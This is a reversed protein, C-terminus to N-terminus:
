DGLFDNITKPPAPGSPTVSMPPSGDYVQREVPVGLFNRLNNEADLPNVETNPTDPDRYGSQRPGSLNDLVHGGVEHATSEIPGLSYSITEGTETNVAEVPPSSGGIQVSQYVTNGEGDVIPRVVSGVQTADFSFPVHVRQSEALADAAATEPSLLKTIELIVTAIPGTGCVGVRNGDADTSCKGSPDTANLPDNGVYAYLNFQDAYLVPDTQYFRGLAPDYYRARYNFIGWEAELRRGTYRYPNGSANFPEEVGYPTYVYQAAMAGSSNVMAIVNGQRDAHYAEYILSACVSGGYTASGNLTTCTTMNTTIMVVREDVSVGPVYRRIIRGANAGEDVIDAIVMDGAYAYRLNTRVSSTRVIQRGDPDYLFASSAAPGMAQRWGGDTGSGQSGAGAIATMRNMSDHFMARYPTNSLNGNGDYLFGGQGDHGAWGLVRDNIPEVTFNRSWASGGASWLWGNQNVGTATLRGAEDYDHAFTVTTATGGISMGHDLRVLDGDAEFAYDISSTGTGVGGFFDVRTRRGLTDYSYVALTLECTGNADADECVSTLRGAGDYAYRAVWGDPWIIATRNGASDYEYGVNLHQNFEPRSQTEQTLRGAFDYEYDTASETNTIGNGPDDNGEDWEARTRAGTDDYAFNMDGEPYVSRTNRNSADYEFNHMQGARTITFARNGAADYDWELPDGIWGGSGDPIPFDMRYPRRYEDTYMVTNPDLYNTRCNIDGIDDNPQAPDRIYNGGFWRYTEGLENRWTARPEREDATGYGAVTCFPQGNGYYTFVDRRATGNHTTGDYDSNLLGNAYYLFSRIDGDPDIIQDIRGSARYRVETTNWDSGSLNGASGTVTRAIDAYQLRSSADYRFRSVSATAADHDAGTLQTLRRDARYTGRARRSTPDTVTLLNGVNDWTFTTTLTQGSGYSVDQVMMYQPLGDGSHYTRTTQRNHSGDVRTVTTNVRGYSTYTIDTREGSPGLTLRPLGDHSASFGSCNGGQSTHYCTESMNGAGDYARTPLSNFVSHGGITASYGYEAVADIYGAGVLSYDVIHNGSSNTQTLQRSLVSNGYEDYFTRTYTYHIDPDYLDYSRGQMVPRGAADFETYNMVHAQDTTIFNRGDRNYFNFTEWSLPDRTLARAGAGIHYETTQSEGNTATLIRGDEDYDFSVFAASPAHPLFIDTLRIYEGVLYFPANNNPSASIVDYAYSTTNGMLNTATLLIPQNQNGSALSGASGITFDVCRNNEDCVDLGGVSYDIDLQRSFPANSSVTMDGSAGYTYSVVMGTPFTTSSRRAVGPTAELPQTVSPDAPLNGGFVVEFEEIVGNASVYTFEWNRRDYVEQVVRFGPDQVELGYGGGAVLTAWQADIGIPWNTQNAETFISGTRTLAANSGAEAQWVGDPQLFFREQSHGRRIRAENDFTEDSFWHQVLQAVVTDVSYNSSTEILRMTSEAAIIMALAQHPSDGGLATDMNTGTRLEVDYNHTWGTGLPSGGGDSSYTRQFNLSYPYGGAGTTIDPPPTVTVGGTRNDVSFSSAWSEYAEDLAERDATPTAITESFNAAGSGKLRGDAIPAVAVSGDSAIRYGIYGQARTAYAQSTDFDEITCNPVCSMTGYINGTPTYELGTRVSDRAPGIRLSQPYVVTFDAYESTSLDVGLSGNWLFNDATTLNSPLAEIFRLQLDGTAGGYVESTSSRSVFWDFMSATGNVSPADTVSRIQTQELAALASANSIAFTSRGRSNADRQAFGTQGAFSLFAQSGALVSVTGTSNSSVDVSVGAIGVRHHEIARGEALGEYIDTAQSAATLFGEGAELASNARGSISIIDEPPPSCDGIPPCYNAAAWTLRGGGVLASTNRLQAGNGRDGLGLMIFNPAMSDVMFDYIPRSYRQAGSSGGYYPHHVAVNVFAQVELGIQGSALNLTIAANGGGNKTMVQEDLTLTVTNADHDDWIMNEAFLMIRRSALEAAQRSVTMEPSSGGMSMYVRIHVWSRFADPIEALPSGYTTSLDPHATNRIGQNTHTIIEPEIDGFGGVVEEISLPTHTSVSMAHATGAYATENSAEATEIASRLSAAAGTLSSRINSSASSSYGDIEYVSSGTSTVSRTGGFNSRLTSGSPLSALVTDNRAHFARPKLSPDFDYNTGGVNVRAWIHRMVVNGSLAGTSATACNNGSVGPVTAPIGGSALLECAGRISSPGFYSTFEAPTLSIDGIVYNATYGASRALEVFLHAQDFPNGAEDLMAGYAGKSLGFTPTTEIHNRVYEFIRDIDNDLAEALRDLEADRTLVTGSSFSTPASSAGTLPTLQPADYYFAPAVGNSGTWVPTGSPLAPTQASAAGAALVATLVAAKLFTHIM